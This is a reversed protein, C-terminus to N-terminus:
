FNINTWINVGVRRTDQNRVSEKSQSYSFNAGGTISSSFNYSLGLDSQLVGSDYVPETLSATYNTNLNYSVGLNVALNSSFKVGKLFPLGIGRPASFTYGLTVSAGRTLSKSPLVFTGQYSNADTETYNVEITSSIGKVWNAQWSFLPSFSITKSDSQLTTDQFRREYSLNFMTNLSSSHVYKKLFPMSELRTLRLNMNPYATTHTRTEVGGYAYTRNINGNYGGTITVFQHNFGSTANYSDNVGRGPYSGQAVMESPISDVLGFQYKIDPRDLVNLYNSTRQRSWSLSPNQLKEIFGEIQKAFWAPSGTATLTDKTEDRLRTFFKVIGVVNVSGDVGYRSNNSVNRVNDDRRIEFRYDETYSSNFSLRPKFLKLDESFSASLIQNRGVEEGFRGRATVSDRNQSLEFNVNTTRHPQYGVSFSPNLTKRHQSGATSLNFTDAPNLRYYSAVRNDTYLVNFSINQPLVSFTQGLLKFALRPDLRYSGRYTMNRSSDANLASRTNNMSRSHDFTMKDLTNKLLWNRSGSKSLSITYSNVVGKSKQKELEDGAIELDDAFYSFRPRQETNRYNVALPINFGWKELLFKHLAINTNIAYNRGASTTSITKPESLRKFRGNSEDFSVTVSALDALNLSGTARITRGIETQPSVLRIDNFWITDTLPTSNLNTISIEFFQNVSLSPNGLVSYVSDSATGEGQTTRKLDLFRQMSVTFLRWGSGPNTEVVTGDEFDVSYEYYNLSDSGIRMAIRPNSNRANLYFSLSDYARYDENDDTERHTVCMHGERINQLKMELAGESRYQGTVPDVELLYPSQYYSHTKTNM